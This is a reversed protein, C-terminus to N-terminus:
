VNGLVYMQELTPAPSGGKQELTVAFAQASEIAKMKQLSDSVDFVGMDVPKGDVIAWLQYQKDAPPEPLNNVFIFTEKTQANWYVSALADPHKEVGKMVVMKNNPNGIIALENEKVTYNAKLTNFEDALVSKESELAAIKQEANKLKNHQFVNLAGSLLLLAVSAAALWQSMGGRQPIDMGIVKAGDRKVNGSELKDIENLIRNKLHAPPTVRHAAAYKVLAERTTEIEKRIEPHQSAVSEVERAEEPSAIGLVYSEIIGSSIYKNVDV